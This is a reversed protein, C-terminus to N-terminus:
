GRFFTKQWVSGGGLATSKLSNMYYAIDEAMLDARKSADIEIVPVRIREAFAKYAKEQWLVEESTVEDGNLKAYDMVARAPTTMMIVAHPPQFANDDYIQSMMNLLKYDRENLMTSEYAYPIFIDRSDFVTRITVVDKRERSRSAQVQAKARSIMWNAEVEFRSGSVDPKEDILEYGDKEFFDVVKRKGSAVGGTVVIWM